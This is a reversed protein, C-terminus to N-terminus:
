SVASGPLKGKEPQDTRTADQLKKELLHLKGANAFLNYYVKDIM